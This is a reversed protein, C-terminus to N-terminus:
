CIFSGRRAADRSHHAHGSSPSLGACFVILLGIAALCGQVGDYAYGIGGVIVVIITAVSVLQENDSM